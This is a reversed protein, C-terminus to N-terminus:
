DRIRQAFDPTDGLKKAIPNVYGQRTLEDFSLSTDLREMDYLYEAAYGSALIKWSFPVRDPNVHSHMWIENTCNSM